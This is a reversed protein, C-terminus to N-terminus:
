GGRPLYVFVLGALVLMLAAVSLRRWPREHLLGYFCVAAAITLASFRGLHGLLPGVETRLEPHEPGLAFFVVAVGFLGFCIAGSSGLLFGTLMVSPRM